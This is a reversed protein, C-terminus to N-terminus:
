KEYNQKIPCVPTPRRVATKTRKKRSSFRRDGSAPHSLTLEFGIALVAELGETREKADLANVIILFEKLAKRPRHFDRSRDSPPHGAVSLTGRHTQGSDGTTSQRSTTLPRDSTRPPWPRLRIPPTATAM